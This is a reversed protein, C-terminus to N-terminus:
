EDDVRSVEGSDLDLIFLQQEVLEADQRRGKRSYHSSILVMLRSSSYILQIRGGPVSETAIPPSLPLRSLVAGSPNLELLQDLTNQHHDSTLGYLVSRDPHYTMSRINLGNLSPISQWESTAPDYSYGGSRDAIIVKKNLTDYAIGSPWSLDPLAPDSEIEIFHGSIPVIKGFKHTTVGYIRPGDPDIAIQNLPYISPVTIPVATEQTPGSLTFDAISVSWKGGSSPVYHVAKFPEIDLQDVSVSTYASAERDPNGSEATDVGKRTEEEKVESYLGELREELAPFLVSGGILGCGAFLLILFCVLTAKKFITSTSGFLAYFFTAIPGLCLLTLLIVLAKVGSSQEESVSVDIIGWIPQVFALFLFSLGGAALLLFFLLGVIAEM